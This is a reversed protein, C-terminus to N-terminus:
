VNVFLIKLTSTSAGVFYVKNMFMWPGSTTGSAIEFKTNNVGSEKDIYIISSGTNQLYVTQGKIDYNGESTTVDVKVQNRIEYGLERFAM